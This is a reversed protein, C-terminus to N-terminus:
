PLLADGLEKNQLVIDVPAYQDLIDPSTAANVRAAFLYPDLETFVDLDASPLAALTEVQQKHPDLASFNDFDSM